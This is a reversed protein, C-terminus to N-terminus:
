IKWIPYSNRNSQDYTSILQINQIPDPIKLKQQQGQFFKVFLAYINPNAVKRNHSNQHLIM